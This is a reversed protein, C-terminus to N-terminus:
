VATCMAQKYAEGTMQNRCYKLGRIMEMRYDDALSSTGSLMTLGSIYECLVLLYTRLSFVDSAGVIM